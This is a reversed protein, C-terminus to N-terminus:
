QSRRARLILGLRKVKGGSAGQLRFGSKKYGRMDEMSLGGRGGVSLGALRARRLVWLRLHGKLQSFTKSIFTEEGWWGKSGKRMRRMM